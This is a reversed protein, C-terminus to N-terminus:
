EVGRTHLQHNTGGTVVIDIGKAGSGIAITNCSRGISVWFPSIVFIRLFVM